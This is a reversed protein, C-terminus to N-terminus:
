MGCSTNRQSSSHPFWDYLYRHSSSKCTCLLHFGEGLAHEFFPQRAYLDDCLLTIGMVAYKKGVGAVWRKGANIECDQKKAGDQPTIFEPEVAIVT